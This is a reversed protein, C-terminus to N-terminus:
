SDGAAALNHVKNCRKDCPNGGSSGHKDSLIVASFILVIYTLADPHSQAYREESGDYQGGNHKNHQWMDDFPEIGRLLCILLGHGVASYTRPPDYEDESVVCKGSYEAPQSIRGRREYKDCDCTHHIDDDIDHQHHDKLESNGAYSDSSYQGLREAHHESYYEQVASVESEM